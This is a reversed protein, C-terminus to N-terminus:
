VQSETDLYRLRYLITALRDVMAETQQYVVREYLKFVEPSLNNEIEAFMASRDRDLLHLLEHIVTKEVFEDSKKELKVPNFRLTAYDYMSEPTVEAHNDEIEVIKVDFEWNGLLLAEKWYDIFEEIKKELKM